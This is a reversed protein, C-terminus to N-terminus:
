LSYGEPISLLLLIRLPNPPIHLPHDPICIIPPPSSLLSHLTYLFIPYVCSSVLAPSYLILPSLRLNCIILHSAPSSSVFSSYSHFVASHPFSYYLIFPFLHTSPSLHPLLSSLLLRSVLFIPAPFSPSSTPFNTTFPSPYLSIRVLSSPPPFQSSSSSTLLFVFLVVDSNETTEENVGTVFNFITRILFWMLIQLDFEYFFFWCSVFKKIICDVLFDFRVRHLM